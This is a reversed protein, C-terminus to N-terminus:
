QALFLQLLQRLVLLEAAPDFADDRLEFVIPRSWGPVIFLVGVAVYLDGIERGLEAQGFAQADIRATQTHQGAIVEFRGAVQSQREDADTEEVALAIKVLDEVGVAPLHLVIRLVVEVEHRDTWEDVAGFVGQRNLDGIRVARDEGADPRDLDAQDGEIQQVGVDLLVAGLIALDGGAEVAAVALHADALLDQETDATQAGEVGQADLRSDAVHVLPVGGKQGELADAQEHLLIEGEGGGALGAGDTVDEGGVSRDGGAVVPERRIQDFGIQLGISLLETQRTLLKQPQTSDVGVVLAAVEAHGDKGQPEGGVGVADAQQVALDGALHPGTEPGADVLLLDGDGRDGVPDVDLGPGRYLDGREVVAIQSLVPAVRIFPGLGPLLDILDRIALQPLGVLGPAATQDLVGAKVQAILEAALSNRGGLDSEGQLGQVGLRQGDTKRPTKGGVLATAQDEAVELTQGGEEGVAVPRYLDEEGALGMRVVIGALLQDALDNVQGALLRKGAADEEELVVIHVDGAKQDLAAIDPKVVGATGLLGAAGRAHLGGEVPREVDANLVAPPGLRTLQVRAPGDAPTLLVFVDVVLILHLRVSEVVQEFGLHNWDEVVAVFLSKGPAPDGAHFLGQEIQGRDEVGVPHHPFVDFSHVQGVLLAPLVEVAVPLPNLPQGLPFGVDAGLEGLDADRMYLGVWGRRELDAHSNRELDPHVQSIERGLIHPHFQVHSLQVGLVLNLLGGGQWELMQTLIAVVIVDKGPFEGAGVGARVAVGQANERIM